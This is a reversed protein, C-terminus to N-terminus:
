SLQTQDGDNMLVIMRRQHLVILACKKRKKPVRILLPPGQIPGGTKTALLAM